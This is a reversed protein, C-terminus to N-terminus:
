CSKKAEAQRQEVKSSLYDQLSSAPVVTRSGIKIALVEGGRILEFMTSRGVTLQEAAQEVTFSLRDAM